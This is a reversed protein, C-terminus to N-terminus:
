SPTGKFFEVHSCYSCVSTRASLCGIDPGPTSFWFRKSGISPTRASWKLNIIIFKFDSFIQSLISEIVERLFREGNFASMVVSVLPSRPM